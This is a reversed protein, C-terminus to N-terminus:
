KKTQLIIELLRKNEEQAKELQSQLWEIYCSKDNADSNDTVYMNTKPNKVANAANVNSSLSSSPLNGTGFLIWDVPYSPFAANIRMAVNRSIKCKGSSIDYLNQPQIEALTALRRKSLRLDFCIKNIRETDATQRAPMIDEEGYLLWNISYSPFAANIKHAIKKSIRSRGATVSYLNCPKLGVVFALRRMTLHHEKCITRLRQIDKSYDSM